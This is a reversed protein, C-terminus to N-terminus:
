SNLFVSQTIPETPLRFPRVDEYHSATSETARPSLTAIVSQQRQNENRLTALDSELARSESSLKEYAIGSFFIATNTISTAVAGAVVVHSSLAAAVVGCISLVISVKGSHHKYKDWFQDFTDLLGCFCNDSM